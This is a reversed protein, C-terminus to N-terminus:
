EKFLMTSSVHRYIQRSIPRQEAKVDNGEAVTSQDREIERMHDSINAAKSAYEMCPQRKRGGENCSDKVDVITAMTAFWECKM